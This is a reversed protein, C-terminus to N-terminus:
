HICTDSHHHVDTGYVALNMLYEYLRAASDIGLKKAIRTRITRISNQSYCLYQALDALTISEYILSCICVTIERHSLSKRELQKCVGLLTHGIDKQFILYTNWSKDPHPYRIKLHELQLIVEPERSTHVMRVLERVIEIKQQLQQETHQLYLQTQLSAAKQAQLQVSLEEAQMYQQQIQKDKECLSKYQQQIHIDRQKIAKRKRYRLLRIVACLIGCLLIAIGVAIHWKRDPYPNAIYQRCKEVAAGYKESLARKERGADERNHSYTAMLAVDGTQEAHNLLTYCANSIQTPNTSHQAVYDAYPYALAPKGLSEYIQAIKMYDYCKSQNGRPYDETQLFYTLASDYQQRYYFYAGRTELVYFRYASDLHFANAEQWLSDAIHHEGLKCYNESLFLLKCAYYWLNDSERFAEMSRLNFILALSDKCQQTCINAMCANVRGRRVPSDPRLRDCAIYCEAAEPIANDASLNRGMYYYAAALTNRHLHRTIPKNLTCIATRLAATDSYLQHKADMSDAIAITRETERVQM